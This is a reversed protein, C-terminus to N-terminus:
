KISSPVALARPSPLELRETAAHLPRSFRFASSFPLADYLLWGDTGEDM